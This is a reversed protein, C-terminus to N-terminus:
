CVKRIWNGSEKECIALGKHVTIKFYPDNVAKLALEQGPKEQGPQISGSLWDTGFEGEKKKIKLAVCMKFRDDGGGLSEKLDIFTGSKFYSLFPVSISSVNM